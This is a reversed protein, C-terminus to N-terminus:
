RTVERVRLRHGGHPAYQRGHLLYQARMAAIAHDRDTDRCLEHWPKDPADAEVVFTTTM